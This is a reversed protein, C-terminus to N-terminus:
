SSRPGSPRGRDLKWTATVRAVVEGSTNSIVAEIEHSLPGDVRPIDPQSEAMLRGRAKKLYTTDLQVPIARVGPPLGSVLALGSALEGLNTLAAAHISSLHNRVARRDRMAVRCHGAALLEVTAGISGSYPIRLGLLRSFLWRGGPVPALRNWSALIRAGPSAPDAVM